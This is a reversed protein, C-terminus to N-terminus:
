KIVKKGGIIFLGKQANKVRQGALNYVANQQQNANIASIGSDATKTFSDLYLQYIADADGKKYVCGMGTLTYKAGAELSDVKVGFQNYVAVNTEGVKFTLNKSDASVYEANEIKVYANINDKLQDATITTPEVTAGESEVKVNMVDFAFEPLKNYRKVFGWFGGLNTDSVNGSIVDGQKLEQSNTGYFLLNKTGDTLYIYKGNVYTVTYSLVPFGDKDIDRFFFFLPKGDKDLEDNKSFDPDVIDDVIEGLKGYTNYFTLTYSKESALYSDNGAYSAKVIVVGHSDGVNVVKGEQIVPAEVKGDKGAKWSKVEISWDVAAGEVAADGAKVTATPLAVASGIEPFMGDPGKGIMTQYGESFEISTATTTGDSLTFVIKHFQTNGAITLKVSKASGTWTVETNKQATPQTIEGSDVTNGKAVLSSNTDITMVMKVINKEASTFTISSDYLRLRPASAWIRNRTKAEADSAEVTVTIGEVAVSTTNENFEGAANYNAGSGSSEGTITPFLTKYDADFDITVEQAMANGCVLM